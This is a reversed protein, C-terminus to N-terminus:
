AARYDARQDGGLNVQGTVSSIDLDIHMSIDGNEHVHPLIEVNSASMLYTFQTNVLPASVV